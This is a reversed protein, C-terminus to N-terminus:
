PGALRDTGGVADYIAGPVAKEGGLVVVNDADLHDLARQTAPDIRDQRTLLVPASDRGALAGGSLADSIHDNSGAAVYVTDVGSPYLEALMASTDYRTAGGVRAVSGYDKLQTAVDASVAATGGLVVIQLPRNVEARMTQLAENTADPLATPRTLLVPAPLGGVTEMPAPALSGSAPSAASLADAFALGNAIYVRYVGDPFEEAIEAATAFRDEGAIRDVTPVADITVLTSDVETGDALYNVAGLYRAGPELGGWEISLTETQGAMGDVPNPEVTMNGADEEDVLFTHLPVTTSAEASFVDFTVYWLGAVPDEVTVSETSDGNGSSDVFNGNPDFVAMDIDSAEVEEDYTAFRVVKTGAPVDVRVIADNTTEPNNVVEVDQVDSAVLGDIDLAIEGDFGPTIEYDREGYTGEDVIEDPAALAVPQVAIASRVQTSGSVWTLSGFAYTNLPADVQTITVEFTAEGGAPVALVEPSVTVQMGAPAEVQATYSGGAGTVDTVTRTVTQVGALEGVAINASNFDSADSEGLDACVEEGGGLLQLQNIACAYTYWDIIDSDYVLGPNYSPAPVVEGSGYDLPTAVSGTREIPEGATNTQRATTQMASKVAMPSWDPYKQILLAGLGAIHPSSMSTGSLSNFTPEGTEPDEHYAAIVDVGPATIDPKLLDGEGASAPGYSSFGAMEPAVVPDTLQAEITAEADANDAEYAHIAEGAAADVHITPVSHFDANLSQAASTNALIMGVGGAEDVAASKDVRAVTGRDCIVITGTVQAPNLTPQQGNSADDDADLWCEAAAQASVGPLGVDAGNVLPAPGVGDGVGVGEYTEENGLIVARNAGRDHTSAAVTTEWPSNHAVSSPGVTDGSNGASAAVFVGADAAGLFGFEVPDVIFDRSGSISYNIVDVGDSTADDIAQILGAGACGGDYGTGPAWCVKYISLQAAPAMGSGEGLDTGNVSMPVGFNGAATSATHSGHGDADRPSRYEEPVVTNGFEEDYYRAGIVKSNCAFDPDGGTDCIGTFDPDVPKDLAAFSPNSSDVGSDLVGVIVGDGANAPGSFQTNWVGADGTLGLYDPTSVTDLQYVEDETVNLVQDSKRLQAAQVATLEAAFGNLAVTYDAVVSDKGVGASSRVSRHQSALYSDYRDAASSSVDLKEGAKPTTAPIGQVGGDYSALPDGALHVIYTKTGEDAQLDQAFAPGSVAIPAM